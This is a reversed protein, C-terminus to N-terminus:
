NAAYAHASAADARRDFWRDLHRAIQSDGEDRSGVRSAREKHCSEAMGARSPGM